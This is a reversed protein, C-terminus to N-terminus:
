VEARQKDRNQAYESGDHVPQARVRSGQLRQKPSSCQEAKAPDEEHPWQPLQLQGVAAAQSDFTEALLFFLKEIERGFSAQTHGLAPVWEPLQHTKWKPGPKVPARTRRWSVRPGQVSDEQRPSCARATSRSQRKTRLDQHSKRLAAGGRRPSDGAFWRKQWSRRAASSFLKVTKQIQAM